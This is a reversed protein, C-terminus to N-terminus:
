SRRARVAPDLPAMRDSLRVIPYLGSHRGAAPAGIGGAAGTILVRQM